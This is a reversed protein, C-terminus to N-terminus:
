SLGNQITTRVLNVLSDMDAVAWAMGGGMLMTMLSLGVSGGSKSYVKATLGGAVLLAIAGLLTRGNSTLWNGLTFIDNGQGM